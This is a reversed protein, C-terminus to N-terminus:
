SAHPVTDTPTILKILSHHTSALCQHSNARCSTLLDWPLSWVAVWPTTYGMPSFIRCTHLITIYISSIWLGLGSLGSVGFAKAGSIAVRKCCLPSRWTICHSVGSRDRCKVLFLVCWPFPAILHVHDILLSNFYCANERSFLHYTSGSM